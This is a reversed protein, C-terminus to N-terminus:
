GTANERAVARFSFYYRSLKCGNALEVTILDSEAETVTGFYCGDPRHYDYIVPDGVKHHPITNIM